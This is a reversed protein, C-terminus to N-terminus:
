RRNTRYYEMAENYRAEIRDALDICYAAYRSFQEQEAPNRALSIDRKAYCIQLRMSDCLVKAERPNLTLIVRVDEAHANNGYTSEHYQWSRKETDLLKDQITQCLDAAKSYRYREYRHGTNTAKESMNFRANGIALKLTILDQANIFNTVKRDDTTRQEYLAIM